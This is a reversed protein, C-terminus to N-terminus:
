ALQAVLRALKEVDQEAIVKQVEAANLKTTALAQAARKWLQQKKKESDALYLESVMEQLKTASITDRHEYYRNVIKRQHNTLEKAM